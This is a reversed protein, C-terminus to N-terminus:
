QELPSWVILIVFKISLGIGTGGFSCLYMAHLWRYLENETDFAENLASCPVSMPIAMWGMRKTM